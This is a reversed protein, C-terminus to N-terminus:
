RLLENIGGHMLLAVQPRMLLTVGTANWRGCAASHYLEENYRRGPRFLNDLDHKGCDFRSVLYVQIM